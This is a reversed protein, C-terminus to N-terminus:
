DSRLHTVDGITVNVTGDETIVALSGDELLESAIGIINQTDDDIRVRRGLTSSLSRWQKLVTSFSNESEVVGLMRDISNLVSCLLSEPSTHKGLIDEVSTATYSIDEPFDSVSINQNIGIGLVVWNDVPTITVLENLIGSIKDEKVLVDNPWKVRVHDIGLSQIGEAVACGVLLSNLPAFQPGLRPRMILSFYLGGEPSFWTRNNRGRGATQSSSVILLDQTIGETIRRKAELNTSDLENFVEVHLQLVSLDLGRNILNMDVM